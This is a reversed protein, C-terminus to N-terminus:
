NSQKLDVATLLNDVFASAVEAEVDLVWVHKLNNTRLKIADKATILVPLDDDFTLDSETMTKHDDYGLM